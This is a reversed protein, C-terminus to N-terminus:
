QHVMSNEDDGGGPRNKRNVFTVTLLRYNLHTSDSHKWQRVVIVAELGDVGPVPKRIPRIKEESIESNYVTVKPFAGESDKM